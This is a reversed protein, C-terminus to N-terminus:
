GRGFLFAFLSLCFCSKSETCVAGRKKAPLLIPDVMDWRLVMIVKALYDCNMTVWPKGKWAKKGRGRMRLKLRPDHIGYGLEAIFGMLQEKSFAATLAVRATDWANRYVM